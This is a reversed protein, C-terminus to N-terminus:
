ATRAGIHHLRVHAGAGWACGRPQAARADPIDGTGPLHDVPRTLLQGQVVM